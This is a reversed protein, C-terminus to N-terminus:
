TRWASSRTTSRASCTLCLCARPRPQIKKCGNDDPWVPIVTNNFFTQSKNKFCVIVYEHVIKINHFSKEVRNQDFKPDTKPWILVNVNDEGFLQQCLLILTGTEHEDINIFMVGNETLLLKAISLRKEMFSLWKSHIYLDEQDAYDQDNYNLTDMGTNYPPDISVVDFKDAHSRAMHRLVALNEGEIIFNGNGSINGKLVTEPGINTVNLESSKILKAM